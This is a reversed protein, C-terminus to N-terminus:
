ATAIPCTKDVLVNHEASDSYKCWRQVVLACIGAFTDRPASFKTSYRRVNVCKSWTMRRSGLNQIRSCSNQMIEPCGGRLGIEGQEM